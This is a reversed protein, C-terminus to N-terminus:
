AELTGEGEVLGLEETSRLGAEELGKGLEAKLTFEEADGELKKLAQVGATQVFTLTWKKVITNVPTLKALVGEGDVSGLVTGCKFEAFAKNTPQSLLAAVEKKASNLYGISAILKKTVITGAAEGITTCTKGASKCGDFEISINTANKTPSAGLLGSGTDGTCTIAVGGVTELVGEASKVTFAGGLTYTIQPLAAQASAAMSTLIALAVIPCTLPAALRGM